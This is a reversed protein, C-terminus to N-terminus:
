QKCLRFFFLAELIIPFVILSFMPAIVYNQGLIIFTKLLSFFLLFAILTLLYILYPRIERSHRLFLPLLATVFLLPILSSAVKYCFITYYYRDDALRSVTHDSPDVLSIPLEFTEFSDTKKMRGMEDKQLHDVWNGQVTGDKFTITKAHWIDTYSPIWYLDFVEGDKTQYAVTSGDELQKVLFASPLQINDIKEQVLYPKAFPILCTHNLYTLPIFLLAFIFIPTIIASKSVGFSQLALIEHNTKLTTLTHILAILMSFPCLFELKVFLLDFVIPILESERQILWEFLFVSSVILFYVLCFSLLLKRFIFRFYLKM